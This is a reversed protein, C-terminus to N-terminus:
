EIRTNYFIFANSDLQRIDLTLVCVMQVERDLQQLM